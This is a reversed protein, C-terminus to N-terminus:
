PRTNPPEPLLDPEEDGNLLLIAGVFAAAAGGAAYVWWSIGGGERIETATIQFWYDERNLERRLESKFDWRIQNRGGTYELEGVAGEIAKPFLRFSKNSKRRLLVGIDYTRDVPVFLEYTIIVKDDKIEWTAEGDGSSIEQGSANSGLFPLLTLLLCVPGFHQSRLFDPVIV